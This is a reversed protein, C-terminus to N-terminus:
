SHVTHDCIYLCMREYTYVYVYICVCASMHICICMYVCMYIYIYIYIYTHICLWMDCVLAYTRAHTYHWTTYAVWGGSM